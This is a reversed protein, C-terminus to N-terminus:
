KIWSRSRIKELRRSSEISASPSFINRDGTALGFAFAIQSRSIPVM